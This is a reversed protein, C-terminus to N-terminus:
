ARPNRETRARDIIASVAVGALIVLPIEAPARYRVAGITPLVSILVLLPFALLPYVPIGRRRALVIGVAGLPLLIWYAVFALRIVAIDTAREGELHMQQTPRFVGFTRGVRAAAAVPVRSKNRKMFKLTHDVYQGDAVSYEPDIGPVFALCGLQYYGLLEGSYTPKCNGVAMAAGLGTSLPVPREFRSSNYISWPAIVLVCAGAAAGLWGCRRELRVDRVSLIMPAVVLVSLALLESRTLAMVGVTAGLAVAIALRPSEHFRYALWITTATGLMAPPESLLEREYLWVFPYAAAIAAAILGPRRGFAARAALGTMVITATGILCTVLQHSLWSRLGLASPGALLVTWAPPHGALAAGSYPDYFGVGDVLNLAGFHYVFGDGLVVGNRTWVVFAIRWALGALTIWALAVEFRATPWRSRRRTPADEFRLMLRSVSTKRRPPAWRSTM